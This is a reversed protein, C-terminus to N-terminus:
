RSLRTLMARYIAEGTSRAMGTFHLWELTCATNTPM